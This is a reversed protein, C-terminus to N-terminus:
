SGQRHAHRRLDLDLRLAAGHLEGTGCCPADFGLDLPQLLSSGQWRVVVDLVSHEPSSSKAKIAPTFWSKFLTVRM